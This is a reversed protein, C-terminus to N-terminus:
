DNGIPESLFFLSKPVSLPPFQNLFFTKLFIYVLFLASSLFLLTWSLLLFGLEKCLFFTFVFSELLFLFFLKLIKCKEKIYMGVNQTIECLLVIFVFSDWALWDTKFTINIKEILDVDIVTDSFFSCRVISNLVLVLIFIDIFMFIRWWYLRTNCIHLGSFYTM